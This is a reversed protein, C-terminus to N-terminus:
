KRISEAKMPWVPGSAVPSGDLASVGEGAAIASGSMMIGLCGALLCSGSESRAVSNEECGTSYHQSTRLRLGPRARNDSGTFVTASNM